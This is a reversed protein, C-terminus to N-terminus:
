WAGTPSWPCRLPHSSGGTVWYSTPHPPLSPPPSTSALHSQHGQPTEPATSPIGHGFPSVPSGSPPCLILLSNPWAEGAWKPGRSGASIRPRIRQGGLGGGAVWTRLSHSPPFPSCFYLSARRSWCGQPTAPTLFSNRFGIPGVWPLPPSGPPSPPPPAHPFPISHPWHNGQGRLCQSAQPTGSGLGTGECGGEQRASGM